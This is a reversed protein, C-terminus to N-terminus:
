FLVVVFLLLNIVLYDHNWLMVSFLCLSFSSIRLGTQIPPSLPPTSSLLTSNALFLSIKSWIYEVRSERGGEWDLCVM